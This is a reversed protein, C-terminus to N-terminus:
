GKNGRHAGSPAFSSGGKDSPQTAQLFAKRYDTLLRGMLELVMFRGEEMYAGTLRPPASALKKDLVHTHLEIVDRAGAQLQRLRTSLDSLAVSLVEGQHIRQEVAEDLLASYRRALELFHEPATTRLSGEESCQLSGPSAKGNVARPPPIAPSTSSPGLLKNTHEERM